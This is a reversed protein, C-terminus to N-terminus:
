RARRARAAAAPCSTGGARPPSPAAGPRRPDASTSSAAPPDRGPAARPGGAGCSRARPRSRGGARPRPRPPPPRAASGLRASRPRAPRPARPTRGAALRIASRSRRSRLESCCTWASRARAALDLLRQGRLSAGGTVVEPDEVVVHGVELPLQGSAGSPRRPGAGPRRRRHRGRRRRAGAPRAVAAPASGASARGRAAVRTRLRTRARRIAASSSRALATGAREGVDARAGAALSARRDAVGVPGREPELAAITSDDGATGAELALEGLARTSSASARRALEGAGAALELTLPEQALAGVVRDGADAALEGLDAGTDRASGASAPPGAASGAAGAPRRRGLGDLGLLQAGRESPRRSPVGGAGSCRARATRLLAAAAARVAGAGPLRRRAPAGRRLGPQALREPREGGAVRAGPPQQERQEGGLPGRVRMRDRVVEHEAVQRRARTVTELAVAASRDRRCAAAATRPRSGPRRRGRSCRGAAPQRGPAPAPEAAQREAAPQRPDPAVAVPECRELAQDVSRQGQALEVGGAHPEVRHQRQRTAASM